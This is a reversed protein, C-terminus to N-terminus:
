GPQLHMRLGFMDSMRFCFPGPHRADMQRRANQVVSKLGCVYRNLNLPVSFTNSRSRMLTGGICYYGTKLVAIPEQTRTHALKASM